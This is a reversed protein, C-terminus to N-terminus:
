FLIFYSCSLFLKLSLISFFNLVDSACTFNGPEYIYFFIHVKHIHPRVYKQLWIIDWLMQNKSRKDRLVGFLRFMSVFTNKSSLHINSLHSSFKFWSGSSFIFIRFVDTRSLLLFERAFVIVLRTRRRLRQPGDFDM